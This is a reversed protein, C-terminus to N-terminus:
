RGQTKSINLLHNKEDLPLEELWDCTKNFAFLIFAENTLTTANPRNRILFDLMGFAREPLKHPIVSSTESNLTYFVGGPLHEKMAANLIKYYSTFLNQAVQVAIVDIKEDQICLCDYFKDKINIQM